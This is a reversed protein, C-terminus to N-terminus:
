DMTTQECYNSPSFRGEFGTKLWNQTNKLSCCVVFLMFHIQKNGNFITADNM